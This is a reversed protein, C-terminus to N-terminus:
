SMSVVTAGANVAADIANLLDNLSSSAAVSLILTAGPAIAHAWEVDLATELAWGTDSGSNNGLVQITTPALGFQSSFTNLDNQISANGYATVLAIKQGSGTAPLQDFGYAHRIQSPAYSTSSSPTANIHLPPRAHGPRPHGGVPVSEARLGSHACTVAIIPLLRTLLGATTKM